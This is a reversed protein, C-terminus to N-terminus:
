RLTLRPLANLFTPRVFAKRGSAFELIMRPIALHQAMVQRYHLDRYMSYGYMAQIDDVALLVPYRCLTLCRVVCM